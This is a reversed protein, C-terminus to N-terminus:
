DKATFEKIIEMPVSDKIGAFRKVQDQVLDELDLSNDFNSLVLKLPSFSRIVIDKPKLNLNLVKFSHLVLM